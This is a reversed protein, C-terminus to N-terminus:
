GKPTTMSKIEARSFLKVVGPEGYVTPTQKQMQVVSPGEVDPLDIVQWAQGSSDYVVDGVEVLGLVRLHQDREREFEAIRENLRERDALLENLIGNITVVRQERLERVSHKSVPM